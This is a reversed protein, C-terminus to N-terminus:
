TTEKPPTQLRTTVETPEIPQEEISNTQLYESDEGLVDSKIM